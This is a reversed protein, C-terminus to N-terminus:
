ADLYDNLTILTHKHKVMMFKYYKKVGKHSSLDGEDFTKSVTFQIFTLGIHM